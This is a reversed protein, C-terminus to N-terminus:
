YPFGCFFFKKYHDSWQGSRIQLDTVHWIQGFVCTSAPDLDAGKVGVIIPRIWLETTRWLQGSRFFVKGVVMVLRIRIWLETALRLECSGCGQRRGLSTPNPDAVEGGVM